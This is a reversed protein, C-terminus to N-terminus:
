ENQLRVSVYYHTPQGKVWDSAAERNSTIFHWRNIEGRIMCVFVRQEDTESFVNMLEDILVHNGLTWVGMFQNGHEDVLPKSRGILTAELQQRKNM